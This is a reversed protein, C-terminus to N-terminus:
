MIIIDLRMGLGMGLISLMVMSVVKSSPKHYPQVVPLGLPTLWEMPRGALGVKRASSALWDQSPPHPFTISHLMCPRLNSFLAPLSVVYRNLM